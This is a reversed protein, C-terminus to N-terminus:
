KRQQFEALWNLVVVIGAPGSSPLPLVAVLRTGDPSLDFGSASVLEKPLGTFLDRPPGFNVAPSTALPMQVAVTGDPRKFLAVISKRGPGFGSDEVTWNPVEQEGTGSPFPSLYTHPEGSAFRWYLAFRGDSTIGIPYREEPGTTFEQPQAGPATLDLRMIGRRATGNTDYLLVRGDPGFRPAGAKVAIVKAEGSGDDAKVCISSAGTSACDYAIAHQGPVWAPEGEDEPTSTIRRTTGATVDWTWIDTNGGGAAYAVRQGDPSFVPSSLNKQPEALTKEVQGNPRFVALQQPEDDHSLAYALTGDAGVAPNRGGAVVLFPAGTAELRATSFPLAWIGVNGQDMRFVIHGTPSYQVENVVQPSSRAKGEIRYVVKRVGGAFVEITDVGEQRHVAYIVGRGDPLFFPQHFDVDAQPVLPILVRPEGGKASVEFMPGRTLGYVFRDDPGWAGAAPAGNLSCIQTPTGDRAPIRWWRGSAIYAVADGEPSWVPNAGTEGSGMTGAGVLVRPQLADLEWIQLKRDAVFVIKRGDASISFARANDGPAGGSLPTGPLVFRRTVPPEPAPRVAWAALATVIATGVVAGAIWLGAYRARVAPAAVVGAAEGGGPNAILKEIAIRAEGISQLRQKPDRELCRRLLQKLALPTAPPLAAWDPDRTVVAAIIDTITEGSFTTRGTLMEYLVVGFAWIDARRDVTKGKAQEPAMYAATGLIMGLQTARATLTPSNMAAAAGSSDAVLAKALGFDLVKVTGDDRVKVNAPKLDRHVIGLDHAAELAEAIQRAIPLAEAAPLAGRAIRDALTDGPVLEMVLFPTTGDEFGYLHAIAPHNLSALVQAERQFRSIRDADAVLSGLLLKIAVDRGLKTDRARYVEGMGGAGIAAVVEYPGLRTGATLPM